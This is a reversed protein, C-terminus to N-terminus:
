AHSNLHLGTQVAQHLTCLGYAALGDLPKLAPIVVEHVPAYSIARNLPLVRIELLCKGSCAEVVSTMRTKILVYACRHMQQQSGTLRSSFRVVSMGEKM